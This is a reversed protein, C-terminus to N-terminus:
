KIVLAVIAGAVGVLAIGAGAYVITKVPWFAEVTIYKGDLASKIEAIDQKIYKLDASLILMAKTTEATSKALEIATAEARQAVERAISRSEDAVERALQVAQSNSYAKVAETAAKQEEETTM